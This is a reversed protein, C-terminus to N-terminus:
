KSGGTFSQFVKKTNPNSSFNLYYYNYLPDKDIKQTNDKAKKETGFIKNLLYKDLVPIMAITVASRVAATFLQPGYTCLMTFAAFRKSAEMSVKKSGNHQFYNMAKKAYVEPNNKVKKLGKAIPTFLAVAFGYGIIGSAISHSAAEKNKERNKDNNQAFIAAPRLICTIVVANLAEFVAQNTAAKNVFWKTVKNQSFKWAGTETIAKAANSGSNFLGRFNIKATKKQNSNNLNINTTQHLRVGTSNNQSKPYLEDNKSQLHGKNYGTESPYSLTDKSKQAEMLQTRKFSLARSRQEEVKSLGGPSTFTQSQLIQITM